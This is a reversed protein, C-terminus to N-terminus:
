LEFTTESDELLEGAWEEGGGCWESGMISRASMIEQLDSRYKPHHGSFIMLIESEGFISSDSGAYWLRM